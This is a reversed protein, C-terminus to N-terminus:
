LRNPTRRGGHRRRRFRTVVRALHRPWRVSRVYGLAGLAIVLGAITLVTAQREVLLDWYAGVNNRYLAYAALGAIPLGLVFTLALMGSRLAALALGAIVIASAIVKVLEPVGETLLAVALLAGGTALVANVLWSGFKSGVVSGYVMSYLLLTLGRVPRFITRVAPLKPANALSTMVAATRSATAAFLDTGKEELVTERGIGANAFLELKREPTPESAGAAERNFTRAFAAGNGAKDAGKSMDFEVASALEGLEEQIIELYLRRAIVGSTFPLSAPVPLTLDDLFALESEIQPKDKDFERQLYGAPDGDGVAVDRLLEMISTHHPKNPEIHLALQMLRRPALTAEVLRLAGDMRGWIWDNVRWSKKYFAGFHALQVGALKQGARGPGGFGHQLDASIQMLEVDQDQMAGGATMAVYGVEVSLLQSVVQDWAPAPGTGLLSDTMGALQGAEKVVLPDDFQKGLDAAQELQPKRDLLVNVIQQVTTELRDDTYLQDDGSHELHAALQETSAAAWSRLTARREKSDASPPDPLKKAQERWFTADERRMARLEMMCGHVLERGERLSGRLDSSSTPSAAADPDVFPAVYLARKLIDLAVVALREVPALGWRWPQGATFGLDDPIFPLRLEPASDVSGEEHGLHEDPVFVSSIEDETWAPVSLARRTKSEKNSGPSDEPLRRGVLVETAINRSAHLIRIRRYVPFLAEGLGDPNLGIASLLEPRLAKRIRAQANNDKLDKLERSITQASPLNILAAGLVQTVPPPKGFSAAEAESLAAPDPNVYTLVRRVENGAPQEFISRLAPEMPMNMLVGGDLVFMGRDFNVLSSEISRRDAPSSAPDVPVYSAEFALPFSATSRAALALHDVIDASAFPDDRAQPGRVFRFRGRHEAQQIRTGFDDVFNRVAGDMLSTTITLDIPADAVDRVRSKDHILENFAQRLKPLFYSDGKLLSPTQSDLPGRMLEMLSGADAWLRGVSKLDAGYVSALALFGANIGGASTGALVDIRARSRVLDLLRGYCTDEDPRTETLRNLERAVGGIWIALSVGGNMVVAVRLEQYDDTDVSEWVKM